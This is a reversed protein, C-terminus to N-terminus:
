SSSRRQSATQIDDSSSASARDMIVRGPWSTTKRADAYVGTANCVCRVHCGLHGRCLRLGLCRRLGGGFFLQITQPTTARGGRSSLRITPPPGPGGGLSKMTRLHTGGGALSTRWGWFSRKFKSM